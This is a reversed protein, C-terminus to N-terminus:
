RVCKRDYNVWTLLQCSVLQRGQQVKIDRGQQFKMDCCNSISGQQCPYKIQCQHRFIHLILLIHLTHLFYLIPLIQLIHLIYLIQLINLFHLIHLTHLYASYAFAFICFWIQWILGALGFQWDLGVFDFRGFKCFWVQWVLSAMGFM